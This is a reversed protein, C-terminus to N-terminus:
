KFQYLKDAEPIAIEMEGAELIVNQLYEAFEGTSLATTSKLVTINGGRWVRKDKLYKSKFVDHLEEASFGTHTAIEPLVVGWYYNNQDKSRSNKLREVIVRVKCDEFYALNGRFYRENSLVLKGGKLEGHATFTDLKKM